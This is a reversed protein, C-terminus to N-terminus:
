VNLIFLGINKQVKGKTKYEESFSSFISPSSIQGTYNPSSAVEDELKYTNHSIQIYLTLSNFQAKEQKFCATEINNMEHEIAVCFQTESKDPFDCVPLLYHHLSNEKEYLSCERLSLASLTLCHRCTQRTKNQLLM